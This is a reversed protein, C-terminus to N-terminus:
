GCEDKDQVIVLGKAKYTFLAKAAILDQVAAHLCRVADGTRLAM